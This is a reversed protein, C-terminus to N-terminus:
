IKRLTTYAHVPTKLVTSARRTCVSWSQTPSTQTVFSCNTLITAAALAGGLTCFEGDGFAELLLEPVPLVDALLLLLVFRTDLEPDLVDFVTSELVEWVDAEVDVDEVDVGVVTVLVELTEESSEALLVAADFALPVDVLEVVVAGVSEPLEAVLLAVSVDVEVELKGDVGGVGATGAGEPLAVVESELVLEAVDVGHHLVTRV